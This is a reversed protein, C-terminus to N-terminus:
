GVRIRLPITSTRPTVRHVGVVHQEVMVLHEATQALPDACQRGLRVCSAVREVFENPSRISCRLDSSRSEVSSFSRTLPRAARNRAIHAATSDRAILAKSQLETPGTEDALRM